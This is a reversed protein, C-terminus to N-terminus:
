TCNRNQHRGIRLEMDGLAFGSGSRTHTFTLV